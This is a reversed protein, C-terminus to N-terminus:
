QETVKTIPFQLENVRLVNLRSRFAIHTAVLVPVGHKVINGYLMALAVYAIGVVVVVVIVVKYCFLIWQPTLGQLTGM